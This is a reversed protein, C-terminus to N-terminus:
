KQIPDQSQKNKVGIRKKEIKFETYIRILFEKNRMQAQSKSTM